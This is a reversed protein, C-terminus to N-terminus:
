YYETGRDLHCLGANNSKSGADASGAIDELTDAINQFSPLVKGSVIALNQNKYAAAENKTIDTLGDIKEDFTYILYNSDASAAFDRCQSIITDAAFDSMFFGRDYKEREYQCISDFYTPISSLIELYTNVDQSDQFTYEALLIPLEAQIGTSPRLPEEYYPFSAATITTELANELIELTLQNEVSLLDKDFCELYSRISEALAASIRFTEASYEGLDTNYELIDYNEPHELTYHLSLASASIEQRFLDDMYTEFEEDATLVQVDEAESLFTDEDQNFLGCKSILTCLIALFVLCMAIILSLRKSKMCHEMYKKYLRLTDKKLGIRLSPSEHSTYKTYM